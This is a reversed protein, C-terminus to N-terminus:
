FPAVFTNSRGIFGTHVDHRVEKPRHTRRYWKAYNQFQEEFAMANVNYRDVEMNQLDIKSCVYYIYADTFQDPLLLQREADEAYTLYKYPEPEEQPVNDPAYNDVSPLVVVPDKDDPTRKQEHRTLVQDYVLFEVQNIWGTIDDKDYESPKFQTIKAVCESLTM